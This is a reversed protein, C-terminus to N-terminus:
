CSIKLHRVKESSQLTILSDLFSTIKFFKFINYPIAWSSQLYKNIVTKFNFNNFFIQNQKFTTLINNKFIFSFILM